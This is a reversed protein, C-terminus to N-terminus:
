ILCADVAEGTVSSLRLADLLAQLSRLQDIPHPQEVALWAQDWVADAKVEDLDTSRLARLVERFRAQVPSLCPPQHVIDTM